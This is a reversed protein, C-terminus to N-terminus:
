CTTLFVFCKIGKKKAISIMNKTGPSHGDWIALLADAQDLMDKNRIMGASRGHTKWDAPMEIVPLSKWNAWSAGINDAGQACGSIVCSIENTWPCACLANWVERKSATRSGCIITKM